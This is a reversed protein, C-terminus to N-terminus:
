FHDLFFYFVNTKSQDMMKCITKRSLCATQPGEIRRAIRLIWSWVIKWGQTFREYYNKTDDQVIQSYWRPKGHVVDPCWSLMDVNLARAIWLMKLLLKEAKTTDSAKHVENHREPSARHGERSTAQAAKHAAPAKSAPIAPMAKWFKKIGWINLQCGPAINYSVIHHLM